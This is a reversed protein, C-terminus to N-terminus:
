ALVFRSLEARLQGSTRALEDVTELTRSVAQTTSSAAESVGAINRAIEESGGSADAVNRSMEQTTATQEEVASAITLQHDNISAIISSIEAIAAVARATDGQITEVRCAIDETARATGQALEKVEHAVVAFGKGADGARAAEITANLALLNTQEAISTIVKVVDGIEQSSVGLRAVTETTADVSRVAESAVQAAVEASQAIERISAGMQDAGAAVTRVNGSVEDAAGAVVGAQVSTEEAGAAIQASSASLEQSAAAVATASTSVTGVIRAISSRAAEFDAAMEALEDRTRVEAAVTLDGAALSRLARRVAHLAGLIRGAVLLAVAGVVLAVLAMAVLVITRASASDARAQAGIEDARETWATSLATTADVIEFYISYALEDFLQEANEVAQPGGAAYAAVMQEDADFYDQWRTRMQDFTAVEEDTMFSRPVSDLADQLASEAELFGVRNENDAAIAAAPSIRRADLMYALQWGTIDGNYFAIDKIGEVARTAVAVREASRTSARSNQIGVAGVAVTGLVGALGILLLKTRIGLGRRARADTPPSTTSM